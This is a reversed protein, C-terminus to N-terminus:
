FCAPQQDEMSRFIAKRIPEAVQEALTAEDFGVTSSQGCQLKAAGLNINWTVVISREPGSEKSTITGTVHVASAKSGGIKRDLATNMRGAWGGEDQDGVFHISAGELGAYGSPANDVASRFGSSSAKPVSPDTQVKEQIIKETPAVGFLDVRAFVALFSIIVAPILFGRLLLPVPVVCLCTLLTISVLSDFALAADPLTYGSIVLGCNVVTLALSAIALNATRKTIKM